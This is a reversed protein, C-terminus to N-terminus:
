QELGHTGPSTQQADPDRHYTEKGKRGGEAKSAPCNASSFSCREVEGVDDGLEGEAGEVGGEEVGEVSSDGCDWVVEM